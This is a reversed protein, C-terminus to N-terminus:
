GKVTKTKVTVKDTNSGVAEIRSLIYLQILLAIVQLMNETVDAAPRVIAFAYTTLPSQLGSVQSVGYAIRIHEIQWDTGYRNYGFMIIM